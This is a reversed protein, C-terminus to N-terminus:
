TYQRYSLSMRSAVFAFLDYSRPVIRERMLNKQTKNGGEQQERGKRIVSFDFLFWLPFSISFYIFLYDIYIYICLPPFVFYCFASVCECVVRPMRINRSRSFVFLCVVAAIIIISIIIFVVIFLLSSTLFLYYFPEQPPPPPPPTDRKTQDTTITSRVEYSAGYSFFEGYSARQFLFLLPFASHIIIIISIFVLVGFVNIYDGGANEGVEIYVLDHSCCM